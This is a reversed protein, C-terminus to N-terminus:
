RPLSKTCQCEKAALGEGPPCCTGPTILVLLIGALVGLLTSSWAFVRAVIAGISTAPNEGKLLDALSAMQLREGLMKVAASLQESLGRMQVSLDAGFLLAAATVASLLLV